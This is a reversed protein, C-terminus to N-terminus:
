VKEDFFLGQVKQWRSLFKLWEEPPIQRIVQNQSNLIQIVIRKNEEDVKLRTSTIPLELKKLIEKRETTIQGVTEQQLEARQEAEGDPATKEFVVDQNETGSGKSSPIRPPAPLPTEGRIAMPLDATNQFEVIHSM